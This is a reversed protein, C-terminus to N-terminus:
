LSLGVRRRATLCNDSGAEFERCPRPHDPYITCAYPEAGTRGGALAACRDGDRRIELYSARDVVLAPHRLVAPDDREITVSHYAERCCAGCDQCDLAPEFRACAPWAALAASGAQRCVGSADRWACAGCVATSGPLPSPLLGTPHPAPAPAAAQAYLSPPASFPAARRVLDGSAALATLLHPSWPAQDSRQAGLIALIVDPARRPTLPDGPLADYFTRFDTTPALFGRLGYGGALHAQLRLCAHERPV